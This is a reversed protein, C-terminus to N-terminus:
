RYTICATCGRQATPWTGTGALLSELYVDATLLVQIHHQLTCRLRPQNLSHHKSVRKMGEFM